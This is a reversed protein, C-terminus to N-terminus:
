SRHVIECHVVKDRRDVYAVDKGLGCDITDATADAARIVDAGAGGLIIDRGPGGVIRDNGAGGWLADSGAGGDLLDNGIGGKLLDNGGLGRLTDNGANGSLVDAYATGTLTDSGNTGLLTRGKNAPPPPPPPPPAPPSGVQFAVTATNDAPNSDRDATLTGTISATGATTARVEFIVKTTTGNAIYDLYCDVQQTGTCGSGFEYLPPGVLQLSTPLTFAFHTQLSGAGGKNTITATIDNLGGVEVQAFRTSWALSLDPV